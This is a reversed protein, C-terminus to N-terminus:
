ADVLHTRLRGSINPDRLKRLAKHEMQRVRERTVGLEESLADLSMPEKDGLGFRRQLVQWERAKLGEQAVVEFDRKLEGRTCDEEPSKSTTSLSDGSSGYVYEASPTRTQNRADGDSPRVSVVIKLADWQYEPADM